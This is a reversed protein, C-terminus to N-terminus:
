VEVEGGQWDTAREERLSLYLVYDSIANATQQLLMSKIFHM